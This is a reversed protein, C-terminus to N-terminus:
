FPHWPFWLSLEGNEQTRFFSALFWGQSAVELISTIQEMLGVFSQWIADGLFTTTTKSLKSQVDKRQLTVLDM